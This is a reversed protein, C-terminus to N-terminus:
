LCNSNGTTQHIRESRELSEEKLDTLDIDIEDYSMKDRDEGQFKPEAKITVRELISHEM